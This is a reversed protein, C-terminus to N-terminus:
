RSLFHISVLMKLNQLSINYASYSSKDVVMFGKNQSPNLFVYNGFM